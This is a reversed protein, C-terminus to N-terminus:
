VLRKFLKELDKVSYFINTPRGHACINKDVCSDLKKILDQIEFLSLETNSKLSEKCSKLKIIKDELKSMVEKPNKEFEYLFELFLDLDFFNDLFAPISKLYLGGEKQEFSFGVESFNDKHDIILSAQESTINKIQKPVLLEQKELNINLKRNKELNIREAAAHQDILLFGDKTECVIYTKHLQGLILTIEKDNLKLTPDATFENFYSNTKTFTPNYNPLSSSSKIFNQPSAPTSSFFRNQNAVDFSAKPAFKNTSELIKFVELKLENIFLSENQIKIFRKKPHVNIDVLGKNIEFFLVFFPKQQIMLYDKYSELIARNIQSSYIARNNIYVFSKPYYFGNIPNMLIGKINFLDNKIDVSIIKNKFDKGFVQLYRNESDTQFFVEKKKSSIFSFKIKPYLLVFELFVDYIKAFEVYKSKLFKKRVPVNYFLDKIKITTGKRCEIEKIEEKELSYGRGSNDVSSIINLNSIANISSLAEGRFGFSDLSYLDDIKKLKSTTHKELCLFLDERTIGCGNDIIEILDLGADEIKLTISDAGSDISNEILEKVVDCPAEIVEGASILNITEKDLREIM